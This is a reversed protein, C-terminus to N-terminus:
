IDEKEEKAWLRKIAEDRVRSDYMAAAVDNEWKLKREEAAKKLRKERLEQVSALYRCKMVREDHDDITRLLKETSGACKKALAICYAGFIGTDPKGEELVVKTETGDQWKVITCRGRRQILKVEPITSVKCDFATVSIGGGNRYHVATDLYNTNMSENGEKEYERDIEKLREGLKRGEWKCSEKWIESIIRSPIPETLQLTSDDSFRIFVEDPGAHHMVRQVHGKSIAYQFIAVADEMHKVMLEGYLRELPKDSLPFPLYCKEVRECRDSEPMVGKMKSELWPEDDTESLCDKLPELIYKNPLPSLLCSKKLLALHMQLRGSCDDWPGM